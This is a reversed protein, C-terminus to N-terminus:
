SSASGNNWPTTRPRSAQRTWFASSSLSRAFRSRSRARAKRCDRSRISFQETLDLVRHRVRRETPVSPRLDELFEPHFVAIPRDSKKARAAANAIPDGLDERLQELAPSDQINEHSGPVRWRTCAVHTVKNTTLSITSPSSRATTLNCAVRTAWITVPRRRQAACGSPGHGLHARRRELHRAHMGFPPHHTDTPSSWGATRWARRPQWASAGSEPKRACKWTRGGDRSVAQWLRDDGCEVRTLMWIAGGSTEHVLTEETFRLKEETEWSACRRPQGDTAHSHRSSMERIALGRCSWLPGCSSRGATACRPTPGPHPARYTPTWNPFTRRRGRRERTRLVSSGAETTSPSGAPSTPGRRRSPTSTRSSAAGSRRSGAAGTRDSADPQRGERNRNRGAATRRTGCPHQRGRALYPRRGPEDDAGSYQGTRIRGCRKEFVACM